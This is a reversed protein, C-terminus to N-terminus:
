SVSLAIPAGARAGNTDQLSAGIVVTATPPIPAEATVLITHASADYSVIAPLAAGGELLSVASPVSGPVLDGDVILALSNANIPYETLVHPGASLGTVATATAKSLSWSGGSKVVTIQEFRVAGNPYSSSPLGTFRLEATIESASVAHAQLIMGTVIIPDQQVSALAPYSTPSGHGTQSAIISNILTLAAPDVPWTAEAVVPLAATVLEDTQAVINSTQAVLKTGLANFLPEMAGPITGIVTGTTTTVVTEYGAQTQTTYAVTTGSNSIALSGGASDLTGTVQGPVPTRDRPSSTLATSLTNGVLLIMHSGDESFAPTSGAPLQLVSSGDQANFLEGPQLHPISSQAAPGTAPPVTSQSPIVACLTRFPACLASTGDPLLALPTTTGTAPAYSMLENGNEYLIGNSLTWDLLSQSNAQVSTSTPQGGSAPLLELTATGGSGPVLVAYTTGDPSRVAALAQPALVARSSTASLSVDVLSGTAPSPAAAVAPALSPSTSGGAPATTTSASTSPTPQATPSSSPTGAAGAVLVHDNIGITYQAGPLISLLNAAALQPPAAGPTPLPAAPTTGATTFAITAPSSAHAGTTTVLAKPAITILYPTDPALPHSPKIVLNNGQWVTTVAMAPEVHIGQVVSSHNMPVNFSVTIHQQSPAVTTGNVPSSALVTAVPAPRGIPINLGVALALLIVAAAVMGFPLSIPLHPTKRHAPIHPTRTELLLDKRLRTVYLPDPSEHQVAKRLREATDLLEPDGQLADWLERDPLRRIDSM